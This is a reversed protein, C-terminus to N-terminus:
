SLLRSLAMAQLLGATEPMRGVRFGLLDSARQLRYKITNKHLFMSEATQTVSEGCDLLYISLTRALEKGENASLIVSRPLLAQDVQDEGKELLEHCSKAFELEGLYFITRGPFIQRAESLHERNTFFARRVDSTNQLNACKTLVTEQGLASFHSLLEVSLADSDQLIRPGNTFAVLDGEYIDAVVVESCTSATARVAELKDLLARRARDTEGHFIWMTDMSGVDVHFIEALRRMKVPEDRLIARVLETLAVSGHEQGWINIALRVLEASQRVLGPTLPGGDKLLLLEFSRQGEAPLSLRHLAYLPEGEIFIPDGDPGPLEIRAPLRGSIEDALTRPWASINLMNGSADTVIATARVRDSLMKLVTEVTRQRLPLRSVRELIDTVIAADKEQDQYIAEMVECIVESYRFDMRNKPMCILTFDLEDALDILRQDVRPMLLGVYYLIIGVEGAESLRRINEMQAKVNDKINAFATIVIESGYFENNHFLEDQLFSPEAYELVSVSAVIRSLGARGAIVEANRLSPLSLLDQVTVSM